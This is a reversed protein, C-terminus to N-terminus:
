LNKSPRNECLVYNKQMINTRGGHKFITARHEYFKTHFEDTLEDADSKSIPYM